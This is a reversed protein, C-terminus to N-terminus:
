APYADSGVLPVFVCDVSRRQELEHKSNKRLITLRQFGNGGVPVELIGGIKLQKKLFAPVRPAGATVVIRDYIEREDEQPYGLSGDGEVVQCSNSFKVKEINERAFKVLSPNREVSIVFPEKIESTGKSVIFTMLAANYGSGTGIELVKKGSSLELEELMMVVMHPASITQGTEGLAVPEDFYAVSKPTGPWLFEERPLHNLADEIIKSKLIKESKLSDVLASRSDSLYEQLESPDRPRFM